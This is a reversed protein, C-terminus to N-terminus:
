PAPRLLARAAVTIPIALAACGLADWVGDGLLACILGAGTLLGIAAPAAYIQRLTFWPRPPTASQQLGSSM